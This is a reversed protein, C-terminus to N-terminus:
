NPNSEGNDDIAKLRSRSIDWRDIEGDERVYVTDPDVGMQELGAEKGTKEKTLRKVTENMDRMRRDLVNGLKIVEKSIDEETSEGPLNTTITVQEGLMSTQKTYQLLYLPKKAPVTESCCYENNESM